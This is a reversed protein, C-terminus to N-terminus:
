QILILTKEDKIEAQKYRNRLGALLNKIYNSKLILIEM